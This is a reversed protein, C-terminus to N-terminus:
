STPWTAIEEETWIRDPEETQMRNIERARDTGDERWLPASGTTAPRPDTGPSRVPFGLPQPARAAYGCRDEVIVLVDRHSYYASYVLLLAAAFVGPQAAEYERMALALGDVDLSDPLVWDGVRAWAEKAQADQATLEDIRSALDLDVAGPWVDNGPLLGAMFREQGPTM